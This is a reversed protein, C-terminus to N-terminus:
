QKEKPKIKVVVIAEILNDEKIKQWADYISSIPKKTKDAIKTLNVELGTSNIAEVLERYWERRVQISEIKTKAKM